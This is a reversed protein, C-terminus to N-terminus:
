FLINKLRDKRSKFSIREIFGSRLCLSLPFKTSGILYKLKYNNDIDIIASSGIENNYFYVDGNTEINIIGEIKREEVDFIRKIYITVIKNKIEDWNM